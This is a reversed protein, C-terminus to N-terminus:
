SEAALTFTGFRGWEIAGAMHELSVDVDYGRSSLFRGVYRYVQEAIQQADGAVNLPPVDHNRGVREFTVVYATM